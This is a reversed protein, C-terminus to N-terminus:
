RWCGTHVAEQAANIAKNAHAWSDNVVFHQMAQTFRKRVAVCRESPEVVVRVTIPEIIVSELVRDRLVKTDLTFVVEQAVVATGILLVAVGILIRM